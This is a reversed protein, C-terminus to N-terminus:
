RREPVLAARAAGVEDLAFLDEEVDAVRYSGPAAVRVLVKGEASADVRYGAVKGAEVEAVFHRRTRERAVALATAVGGTVAGLLGMGSVLSPGLVRKLAFEGHFQTYHIVLLGLTALVASAAGIMVEGREEGALGKAALRQAWHIPAGFLALTAVLSPVWFLAGFTIGLMVGILLNAFVDPGGEFAMMLGSALGANAAALPASAVWGWRLRTTGVTARMRLLVAWLTGLVLTPVGVVVGMAGAGESPALIRSFVAASVAALSLGVALCNLTRLLSLSRFTRPLRAGM